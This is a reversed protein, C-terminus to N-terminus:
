ELIFSNISFGVHLLEYSSRKVENLRRSSLSGATPTDAVETVSGISSATGPNDVDSSCFDVGFCEDEQLHECRPAPCKRAGLFILSFLRSSKTVRVRLIIFIFVQLICSIHSVQCQTRYRWGHLSVCLNHKYCVAHGAM